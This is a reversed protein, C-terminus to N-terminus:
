WMKDPIVVLRAAVLKAVVYQKGTLSLFPGSDGTFTPIAAMNQPQHASCDMFVIKFNSENSLFTSSLNPHQNRSTLWEPCYYHCHNLQFTELSSAATM